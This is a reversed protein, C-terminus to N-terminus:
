RIGLIRVPKSYKGLRKLFSKQRKKRFSYADRHNFGPGTIEKLDNM